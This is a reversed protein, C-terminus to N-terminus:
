RKVVQVLGALMAADAQDRTILALGHALATAAIMRDFPRVKPQGGREKVRALVRRYAAVCDDDYALTRTLRERLLTYAELRRSMVAVDASNQLRIALESWTLASVAIQSVDSLDPEPEAPNALAIVVSTDLLARM